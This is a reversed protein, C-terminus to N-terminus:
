KFHISASKSGQKRGNYYLVFEVSAGSPVLEVEYNLRKVMVGTKSYFDPLESYQVDLNCYLTGLAQVSSVKREPPAEDECQFLEVTFTGDFDSTEYLTYWSTRVPKLKFV